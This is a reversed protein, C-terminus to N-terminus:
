WRLRSQPIEFDSSARYLALRELPKGIEDVDREIFKQESIFQYKREEFNQGSWSRVYVIDIRKGEDPILRILVKGKTEGLNYDDPLKGEKKIEFNLNFEKNLSVWIPDSEDLDIRVEDDYHTQLYGTLDFSNTMRMNTAVLLDIDPREGEKTLCGGILYVGFFPRGVDDEDYFGGICKDQMRDLFYSNAVVDVSNLVRGLNNLDPERLIDYFENAKKAEEISLENERNM